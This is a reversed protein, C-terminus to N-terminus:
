EGDAKPREHKEAPGASPRSADGDMKRQFMAMLWRAPVPLLRAVGLSRPYILTKRRRELGRVVLRALEGANGRPGWAMAAGAGPVDRRVWALLATEVPGAM